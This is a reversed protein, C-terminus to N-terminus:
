LYFNLLVKAHIKFNYRVNLYRGINGISKADMVFCLENEGYLERTKNVQELDVEKSEMSESPILNQKASSNM